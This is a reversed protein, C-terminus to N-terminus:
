TEEEADIGYDSHNRSKQIKAYNRSNLKPITNWSEKQKYPTLKHCIIFDFICSYFFLYFFQFLLIKYNVILFKSFIM